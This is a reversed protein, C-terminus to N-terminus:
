KIEKLGKIKPKLTKMHYSGGWCEYSLFSDEVMDKILEKAEDKNDAEISIKITAEAEFKM